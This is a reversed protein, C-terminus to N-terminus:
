ERCRMEVRWLLSQAQELAEDAAEDGTSGYFVDTALVGGAELTAARARAEAPTLAEFLPITGAAPPPLREARDAYARYARAAQAQAAACERHQSYGISLVFVAISSLGLIPISIAPRESIWDTARDFTRKWGSVPRPARRGPTVPRPLDARRLLWLVVGGTLFGGLHGLWAVSPDAVAPLVVEVVLWGIAILATQLVTPARSSGVVPRQHPAEVLLAGMLGAVAGSAGLLPRDPTLTFASHVLLAGLGAIVFLAGFLGPGLRRELPPGVLALFFLNGAIHGLGHHALLHTFAAHLREGRWLEEPAYALRRVMADDGVLVFVVVCLLGIGLSVWARRRTAGAAVRGALLDDSAVAAAFLDLEADGTTAELSAREAAHVADVIARLHAGEGADLWIGACETCVDVEVEHSEHRISFRQMPPAHPGHAPCRLASPGEAHALGRDTWSEPRVHPGLATTLAAPTLLGGGCRGCALMRTGELVWPRLVDTCRPCLGEETM